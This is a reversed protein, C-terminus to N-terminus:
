AEHSLGGAKEMDSDPFAAGCLWGDGLSPSGGVGAFSSCSSKALGVSLMMARLAEDERLGEYLVLPAVVEVEGDLSPVGGGSGGRGCNCSPTCEDRGGDDCETLRAGDRGCSTELAVVCSEMVLVWAWAKPLSKRSSAAERAGACGRCTRGVRTDSTRVSASSSLLTLLSTGVMESAPPSPSLM